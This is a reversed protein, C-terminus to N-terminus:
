WGGMQHSVRRDGSVVGLLLGSTGTLTPRRGIGEPYRPTVTKGFMSLLVPMRNMEKSRCPQGEGSGWRGAIFKARPCVCFSLVWDWGRVCRSDTGWHMAYIKALHGRLTRRTRM